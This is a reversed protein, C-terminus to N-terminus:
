PINEFPLELCLTTGVTQSREYYLLILTYKKQEFIPLNNRTPVKKFLFSPFYIAFSSLFFVEAWPILIFCTGRYPIEEEQTLTHGTTEGKLSCLINENFGLFLGASM